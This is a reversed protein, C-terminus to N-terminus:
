MRKISLICYKPDLVASSFACPTKTSTIYTVIVVCEEGSYEGKFPDYEQLTITDGVEFNRDVDYRLDHM